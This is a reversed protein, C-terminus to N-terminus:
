NGLKGWKAGRGTGLAKVKREKQLRALLRRILDVDKEKYQGADWIEGRCLKHPKKITAESIPM